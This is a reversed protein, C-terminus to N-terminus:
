VFFEVVGQADNPDGAPYNISARNYESYNTYSILETGNYMVQIKVIKHGELVSLGTIFNALDSTKIFMLVKRAVSNDYVESFSNCEFTCTEQADNVVKVEYM